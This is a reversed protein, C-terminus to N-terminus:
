TKIKTLELIESGGSTLLEKIDGVGTADRTELVNNFCGYLVCVSQTLSVIETRDEAIGKASKQQYTDGVKPNAEVFIGPKAGHRSAEWSGENSGSEVETTFEGM